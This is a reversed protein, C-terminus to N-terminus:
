SPDTSSAHPMGGMILNDKGLMEKGPLPTNVVKNTQFEALNEQLLRLKIYTYRAYNGLDLVEAIAAELTDIGFWTLDGYKEAGMEHRELTREDYERSLENVKDAIESM